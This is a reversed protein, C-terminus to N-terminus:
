WSEGGGLSLVGISHKKVYEAGRLVDEETVLPMDLPIVAHLLGEELVCEEACKVKVCEYAAFERTLYEEASRGLIVQRAASSEVFWVKIKM